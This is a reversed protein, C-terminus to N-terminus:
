DAEKLAVPIEAATAATATGLSISVLPGAHESNFAQMCNRIHIDGLLNWSFQYKRAPEM